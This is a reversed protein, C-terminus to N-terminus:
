IIDVFYKAIIRFTESLVFDLEDEELNCLGENAIFDEAVDITKSGLVEARIMLKKRTEESMGVVLEKIEM